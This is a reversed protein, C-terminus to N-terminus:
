AEVLGKVTVAFPSTQGTLRQGVPDLVELLLENALLRREMLALLLKGRATLVQFCLQGLQPPMALLEVEVSLLLTPRALLRMFALLSQGTLELALLLLEGLRQGLQCVALMLEFMGALLRFQGAALLGAALLPQSGLLQDDFSEALLSFLTLQSKGAFQRRHFASGSPRFGLAARDAAAELRSAIFKSARALRRLAARALLYPLRLDRFQLLLQGGRAIFQSLCAIRMVPENLLEVGTSAIGRVETFLRSKQLLLEVGELAGGFMGRVFKLLLRDLPGSGILSGQILQLRLHHFQLLVQQATVFLQASRFGRHM